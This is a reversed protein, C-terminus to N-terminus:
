LISVVADGGCLDTAHPTFGAIRRFDVHGCLYAGGHRDRARFLRAASAHDRAEVSTVLDDWSLGSEQLAIAQDLAPPDMDM